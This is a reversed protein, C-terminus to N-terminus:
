LRGPLLHGHLALAHEPNVMECPVSSTLEGRLQVVRFISCHIFNQLVSMRFARQNLLAAVISCLRIEINKSAAACVLGVPGAKLVTSGDWCLLCSRGCKFNVQVPGLGKFFLCM